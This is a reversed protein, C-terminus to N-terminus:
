RNIFRHKCYKYNQNVTSVSIGSGASATLVGTDISWTRNASLDFSVGNITLTRGTPVYAGGATTIIGRVWATSPVKASNDDAGPAIGLTLSAPIVVHGEADFQIINSIHSTKRSKNNM